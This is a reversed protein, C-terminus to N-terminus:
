NTPVPREHWTCLPGNKNIHEYASTAALAGQAAAVIDQKFHGTENSLDGACLVGPVNTEMMENTEVYGDKDLAVGVQKALANNPLAGIEIFLGDLKLTTSGEIPKTVEISELRDKGNIQKVETQYYVKVKDGFRKMRDLNVPEGSLKVERTIFYVRAAHQGALNAGKISADGGGVIAIVKGKYLPSDCTTCYHIGKGNLARENPLGIRRRATGTTLIVTQAGLEGRATQLVFCGGEKRLAAVKGDRVEVGVGEAQEKMKVVLDYGDIEKFGPYNEITWATTTAGGLEAGIVLTKMRYRAAYIGASLGAVGSGVVVTDYTEAPQALAGSQKNIDNM